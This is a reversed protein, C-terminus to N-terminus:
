RWIFNPLVDIKKILLQEKEGTLLADTSLNIEYDETKATVNGININELITYKDESKQYIEVSQRYSVIAYSLPSLEFIQDGITISTQQLFIYTDNGDYLFTKPISQKNKEYTLCPIEYEYTITSFRNVKQMNGLDLPFVIAMDQPLLLKNEVDKYYIPTSDLTIVKDKMKLNTIGNNEKQIELEGSYEVKQGGFYQYFEYDELKTMNLNLIYRAGFVIVAIMILVFIFKIIKDKKM